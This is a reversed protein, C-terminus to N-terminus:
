KTKALKTNLIAIQKKFSEVDQMYKKQLGSIKKEYKDTLRAIKLDYSKEIEELNQNKAQEVLAEKENNLDKEALNKLNNFDKEQFAVSNLVSFLYTRYAGFQKIAEDSIEESKKTELQVIESFNPNVKALEEEFYHYLEGNKLLWCNSLFEAIEEAKEEGNLAALYGEVLELNTVKNLNKGPFYKKAFMWDKKLHENKVDKKVSEMIEPMWKKLIAFKEKYTVDKLM